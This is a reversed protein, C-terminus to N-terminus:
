LACPVGTHNHSKRVSNFPERGYLRPGLTHNSHSFPSKHPRSSQLKPNLARRKPDKQSLWLPGKFAKIKVFHKLRSSSFLELARSDKSRSGKLRFNTFSIDYIMDEIVRM